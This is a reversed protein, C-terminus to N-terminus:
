DIEVKQLFNLFNSANVILVTNEKRSILSRIRNHWNDSESEPQEHSLQKRFRVYPVNIFKLEDIKGTILDVEDPDMECIKLEATTVIVNLYIRLDFYSGLSAEEEIAIAETSAIVDAAIRELMPKSKSDQGAVVCYKSQYSEPTMSRDVWGFNRIRGDLKYTAWMKANRRSNSAEKEVLFIWSTDLVRKCEINLLWERQKNELVLDIFGSAEGNRWAHEEYLVKWGTRSTTAEVHHYLAIQLPFGSSNVQKILSM